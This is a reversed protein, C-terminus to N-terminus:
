QRFLAVAAASVAAGALVDAAALLEFWSLQSPLLLALSSLSVWLFCHQFSQGAVLVIRNDPLQPAQQYCRRYQQQQQQLFHQL